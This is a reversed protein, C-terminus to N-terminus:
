GQLGIWVNNIRELLYDRQMSSVWFYGHITGEIADMNMMLGGHLNGVKLHKYLGNLKRHMWTAIEITIHDDDYYYFKYGILGLTSLDDVLIQIRYPM